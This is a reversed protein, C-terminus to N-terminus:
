PAGYAETQVLAHLMREVQWAHREPLDAVLQEFEDATADIPDGGVLIRWYDRVTNRRFYESNAAVQAWEVVDAVPEGFLYGAEPIERVRRGEEEGYRTLRSNNHRGTAFGAIGEYRSFPYSLPDLTTHCTACADATIGKDDYDILETDPPILGESRAIDLGLYSRYAQAATTRPLPTFMTNVVFFYRMTIMGARKGAQANQGQLSPLPLYRTPNERVQIYYDATLVERADRDDTQTYTFLGYDADYDGLPVPGSGRGSKVAAIPRVKKHALQWLVGDRGQWFETDLCEDLLDAIAERQAMPDMASVAELADFDPSYGCVDLSVKKYAYRADYGCVNYNPNINACPGTPGDGPRDQADGPGTGAELETLNPFGDGDSDGDALAPLAELALDLFTAPDFPGGGLAAELDAGFPNRAPPLTHCTTCDPVGGACDAASPWVTCIAEPGTPLALAGAAALWTALFALRNMVALTSSPVHESCGASPHFTAIHQDNRPPEGTVGFWERRFTERSVGILVCM